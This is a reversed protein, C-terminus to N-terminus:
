QFRRSASSLWGPSRGSPERCRVWRCLSRPWRPPAAPAAKRQPSSSPRRVSRSLGIRTRLVIQAKDSNSGIPWAKRGAQPSRPSAGSGPAPKRDCRGARRVRRQCSPIGNHQGTLRTPDQAPSPSVRLRDTPWARAQGISTTDDAVVSSRRRSLCSATRQGGRDQDSLGSARRPELAVGVECPHGADRRDRDRGSSMVAMAQVAASVALDVSRQVDDGDSPSAQVGRGAGVQLALFGFALGAHLRHAAELTVERAPVVPQERVPSLLGGARATARQQAAHRACPDVAKGSGCLACRPM